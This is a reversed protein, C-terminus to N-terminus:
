LRDYPLLPLGAETPFSTRNPYLTDTTRPVLFSSVSSACFLLGALGGLLALFLAKMHATLFAISPMCALDLVAPVWVGVLRFGLPHLGAIFDSHCLLLLFCSVL